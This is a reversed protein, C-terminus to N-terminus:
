FPNEVIPARESLRQDVDVAREDRLRNLDWKEADFMACGTLSAVVIALLTARMWRMSSAVM